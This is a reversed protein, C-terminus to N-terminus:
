MFFNLVEEARQRLTHDRMARAKARAAIEEAEQPHKLFYEVAAKMDEWRSLAIVEDAPDFHLPLHKRMNTLQFAGMGALEFTRPNVFDGGFGVPDTESHLNLNIRSRAYVSRAERASLRRNGVEVCPNGCASWGEGFIRFGACNLRAFFNVRNPYPAGVFSVAIDREAAPLDCSDPDCAPPLYHFNGLRSFPEKQIAFFRDFLHCIRKWYDFARYDEVFWFALKIGAKRLAGLIEPDHLPSQAIGFVLEPEFRRIKELLELRIDLHFRYTREEDGSFQLRLFEESHPSFDLCDSEQGADAFAKQLPGCLPATGGQIAGVVLVRM